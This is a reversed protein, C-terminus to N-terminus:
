FMRLIELYTTGFGAKQLLQSQLINLFPKIEKKRIYFGRKLYVFILRDYGNLNDITTTWM